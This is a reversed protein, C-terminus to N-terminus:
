IFKGVYPIRKYLITTIDSAIVVLILMPIIVWIGHEFPNFKVVKYIINVWFMHFIYIGFSNNALHQISKEGVKYIYLLREELNKALYFLLLGTLVVIPSSYSSLASLEHMNYYYEYFASCYLILSLVFLLIAVM